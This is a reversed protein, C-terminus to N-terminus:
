TFTYLIELEDDADDDWNWTSEIESAAVIQWPVTDGNEMTKLRACFVCDVTCKAAEERIDEESVKSVHAASLNFLKLLAITHEFETYFMMFIEESSKQTDYMTRTAKIRELGRKLSSDMPCEPNGCKHGQKQWKEWKLKSVLKLLSRTRTRSASGPTASGHAGYECKLWTKIRHCPICPLNLRPPGNIEKARREKAM